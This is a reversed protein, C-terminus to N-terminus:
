DYWFFFICLIHHIPPCYHLKQQWSVAKCLMWYISPKLIISSLQNLLINSISSELATVYLIYSICLQIAWHYFFYWLVVNYIQYQIFKISSSHTPPWSQQCQKMIKKKEGFGGYFLLQLRLGGRQFPQIQTNRPPLITLSGERLAAMSDLLHDM